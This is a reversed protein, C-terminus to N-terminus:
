YEILFLFFIFLVLCEARDPKYTVLYLLPSYMTKNAKSSIRILQIHRTGFVLRTFDVPLEEGCFRASPRFNASKM